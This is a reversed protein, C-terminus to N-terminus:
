LAVLERHASSANSSPQPRRLTNPLVQDASPVLSEHHLGAGRKSAGISRPRVPPRRTRDAEGCDPEDCNRNM